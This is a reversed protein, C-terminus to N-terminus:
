LERNQLMREMQEMGEIAEEINARRTKLDAIIKRTLELTSGNVPVSRQAASAGPQATAVSTKMKTAPIAPPIEHPAPKTRPPGDKGARAWCRGMHRLPRGCRCLAPREPDQARKQEGLVPPNMTAASATTEKKVGPGMGGGWCDNCM